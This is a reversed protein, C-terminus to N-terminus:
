FNFGEYEQMVEVVLFKVIGFLVSEADYLLCSRLVKLSCDSCISKQWINSRSIKLIADSLALPLLAIRCADMAVVDQTTELIAMKM